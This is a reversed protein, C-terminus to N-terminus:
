TKQETMCSNNANPKTRVECSTECSFKNAVKVVLWDKLYELSMESM